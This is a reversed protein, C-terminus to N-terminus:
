LAVITSNKVAIEGEYAEVLIYNAAIPVTFSTEFGSKPLMKLKTMNTQCDGVYVAYDTVETAGNWSVYGKDGNVVVKPPTRPRGVWRARYGRYTQIINNGGFRITMRTDGQPGFEKMVAEYGFCLLQNGNPFRQASGQAATYLPDSLDQDASVFSASGKTGAKAPPTLYLVLGNSPQTMNHQYALSQFANNNNFMHLFFSDKAPNFSANDDPVAIRVDHQWKFLGEKPLAGFDGGTRGNLTWVVRGSRDNKVLYASSTHRSNVLFFDGVAQISNMHFYDFATSSNQGAGPMMPEYTQSIPVHQLASWRFLEKETKIDYIFFFYDWVYGNRSGGISSLDAQTINNATFLITGDNRVQQEHADIDCDYGLGPPTTLNLRPCFTTIKDYSSNLITISGYYHGINTGALEVGSWYTLVPENALTAPIFSSAFIGNEASWMLDGTDTMIMPSTQRPQEISSTNATGPGFFIYGNALPEGSKQISLQPPHLHPETYYSHYPWFVVGPRHLIEQSSEMLSPTLSM